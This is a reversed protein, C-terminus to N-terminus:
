PKGIFGNLVEGRTRLCIEVAAEYAATDTRFDPLANDQLSGCLNACALPIQLQRAYSRLFDSEGGAIDTLIAPGFIGINELLPFPLIQRLRTLFDTGVTMKGLQASQRAIQLCADIFFDLHVNDRAFLSISNNVRHLAVPNRNADRDMWVEHCFAFGRSLAVHLDEPRFVLMDADVWVALDYGKALFRKAAMLRALDTVPCIETGAKQRYWDPALALFEDDFFHYDFGKAAAWARVSAMCSEIWAPVHRTRYSQYVIVKM